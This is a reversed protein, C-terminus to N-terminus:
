CQMGIYTCRVATKGTMSVYLCILDLEAACCASAAWCTSSEHSVSLCSTRMHTHTRTHPRERARAHQYADTQQVTPTPRYPTYQSAAQRDTTKSNNHHVERRHRVTIYHAARTANLCREIPHVGGIKFTTKELYSILKQPHIQNQM